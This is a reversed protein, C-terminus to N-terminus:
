GDDSSESNDGSSVHEKEESETKYFPCNYRVMQGPKPMYECEKRSACINCDETKYIDRLTMLCDLILAQRAIEQDLREMTM